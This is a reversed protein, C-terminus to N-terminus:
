RNARHLRAPRQQDMEWYADPEIEVRLRSCALPNDAPDLEFQWRGSHRPGLTFDRSWNGEAFRVQLSGSYLSEAERDARLEIEFKRPNGDADLQHFPQSVRQRTLSAFKITTGSPELKVTTYLARERPHLTPFNSDDRASQCGASALMLALAALQGAARLLGFPNSLKM